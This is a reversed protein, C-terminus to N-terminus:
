RKKLQPLAQVVGDGAVLTNTSKHMLLISVDVCAVLSSQEKKWGGPSRAEMWESAFAAVSIM